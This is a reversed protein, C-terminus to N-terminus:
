TFSLHSVAFVGYLIFKCNVKSGCKIKKSVMGGSSVMERKFQLPRFATLCLDAVLFLMLRDKLIMM